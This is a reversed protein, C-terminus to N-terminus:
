HPPHLASVTNVINNKFFLFTKVHLIIVLKCTKFVHLVRLVNTYKFFFVTLQVVFRCEGSLLFPVHQCAGIQVM